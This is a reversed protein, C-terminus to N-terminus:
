GSRPASPPLKAPKRSGTGAPRSASGPANKKLEGAPVAPEIFEDASCDYLTWGNPVTFALLQPIPDGPGHLHLMISDIIAEEGCSLEMHFDPGSYVGGTSAWEVGSLYLEIRRRVEPVTGLPLSPPEEERQVSSPKWGGYNM